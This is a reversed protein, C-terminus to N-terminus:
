VSSWIGHRHFVILSANHGAGLEVWAGSQVGTFPQHCYRYCKETPMAIFASRKLNDSVFHPERLARDVVMEAGSLIQQARDKVRHKFLQPSDYFAGFRPPSGRSASFM